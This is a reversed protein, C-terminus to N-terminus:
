LNLSRLWGFVGLIWLALPLLSIATASHLLEGIRGWYPVLRRGPVTWSAIACAAAVAFLVVVLAPLTRASVALGASVTLASVGLVGPVLLALRQWASGMGRGHLLLLLSLAGAMCGGPWGFPQVLAALCAICLLGTAAFLATMWVDAAVTRAAVENSGHPDIGEQLQQANTPLPPTRMGSLRFSLSPVFAGFLVTLLVSVAAAEQVTLDFLIILLASFAGGVAISAIALFLPTFAAVVALTLVAGGAASASAALLRAGLVHAMQDGDAGGGPLVWGAHTWYVTAMVGLAAGAGADGVARSASAAGALMLLGGAFLVAARLWPSLGPLALLVTGVALATASLGILVRRGVTPTWAFPRRDMNTAIGDVLDDFHPEPLAEARPRLHLTEGDRVGVADLTSEEDVPAGGLRQLVWGGHELGAEQTDEGAYDLLAPLLDAVPVDGPVALDISKAPARVSIRCLHAVTSDTM